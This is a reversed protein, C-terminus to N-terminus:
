SRRDAVDNQPTTSAEAIAEESIAGRNKRTFLNVGKEVIGKRTTKAKKVDKLVGGHIGEASLYIAAPMKEVQSFTHIVHDRKKM